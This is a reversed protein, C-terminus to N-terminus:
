LAHNKEMARISSLAYYAIYGFYLALLSSVLMPMSIVAAEVDHWPSPTPNMLKGELAKTFEKWRTNFMLVVLFLVFFLAFSRPTRTRMWKGSGHLKWSAAASSFVIAALVIGEARFFVATPLPSLAVALALLPLTCLHVTGVCAFIGAMDGFFRAAPTIPVTETLDARRNGDRSQLRTGFLDAAVLLVILHWFYVVRVNFARMPLVLEIDRWEDMWRIWITDIVAVPLAALVLAAVFVGYSSRVRSLLHYRAVALGRMAAGM